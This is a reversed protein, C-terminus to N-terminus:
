RAAAPPPPGGGGVGAAGHLGRRLSHVGSGRRARAHLLPVGVVGDANGLGLSYGALRLGRWVAGAGRASDRGAREVAMPGGRRGRLACRGGWGQVQPLRFLQARPHSGARGAGHGALPHRRLAPPLLRQALWVSSAAKLGDLIATLLGAGFGAARMVNTGGTRGSGVERVDKGAFLRVLIYGMPVSGILYAIALVLGLTLTM